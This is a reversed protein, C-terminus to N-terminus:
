CRLRMRSPIHPFRGMETYETFHVREQL